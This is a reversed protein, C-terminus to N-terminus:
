LNRRLHPLELATYLKREPLTASKWKPPRGGGQRKKNKSEEQLLLQFLSLVRFFNFSLYNKVQDSMERRVRETVVISFNKRKRKKWRLLDSPSICRGNSFSAVVQSIARDSEAEERVPRSKTFGLCFYWPRVQLHIRDHKFIDVFFHIQCSTLQFPELFFYSQIFLFKIIEQFSNKSALICGAAFHLPHSVIFLRFKM